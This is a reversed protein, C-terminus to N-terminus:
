KSGGKSYHKEMEENAAEARRVASLADGYVAFDCYLAGDEAHIVSFRPGTPLSPELDAVVGVWGDAIYATASIHGDPTYRPEEWTLETSPHAIASDLAAALSASTIVPAGKSISPNAIRVALTCDIRQAAYITPCGARRWKRLVQAFDVARLTM